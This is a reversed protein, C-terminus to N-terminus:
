RSQRPVAWLEEHSDPAPPYFCCATWAVGITESLVSKVGVSTRWWRREEYGKVRASLIGISVNPGFALRYLMKTRRGHTGGSFVDLSNGMVGNNKMWNRLRVASLFTRDQASAPAAIATVDINDLGHRKLYNAALDAYNTSTSLDSFREIPGGTTVIREYQGKKFVAVAQDLEEKDLWGEVVLLRAGPAADNPALFPHILSGTLVCAAGALAILMLWGAFTPLWIQRRKAFSLRAM